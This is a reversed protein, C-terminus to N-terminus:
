NFCLTTSAQRMWKSPLRCRSVWLAMGYSIRMVAGCAGFNRMDQARSKGRLEFDTEGECRKTAMLLPQRGRISHYDFRPQAAASDIFVLSATFAVSLVNFFIPFTPM